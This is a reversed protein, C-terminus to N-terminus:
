GPRGRGSRGRALWVGGGLAAAAIAAVAYLAVGGTAPVAPDEIAGTRRPVFGQDTLDMTDLDLGAARAGQRVAAAIRQLQAPDDKAHELSAGILLSQLLNAEAMEQKAADGANAIEPIAAMAEAAQARVAAIQRLPPTDTRQRAALWANLWWAAYADGVHDIRFGYRALEPAARAILDNAALDKELSAAGQPDRARAKAVFRAYNARRRELSPTFRLSATPRPKSAEVRRDKTVSEQAAEDMATGHAIGMMLGSWDVGEQAAAPTAGGILLPAILGIARNRAAM